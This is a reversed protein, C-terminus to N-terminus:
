EEVKGLGAPGLIRSVYPFIILPVLLNLLLRINNLVFNSKISRVKLNGHTDSIDEELGIM